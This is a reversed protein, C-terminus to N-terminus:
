TKLVNKLPILGSMSGFLSFWPTWIHAPILVAGQGAELVIELLHKSDIGLIPRGDSNINGIRALKKSIASAAESLPSLILHHLKRVAGAKKYICSIEASFVFRVPGPAAPLVRNKITLTPKLKYLGPEAPELKDKLEETWKPHTFDGTGVVSLGKIKAWYDLEEPRLEKSTARSFRSHIHFDAIFNM